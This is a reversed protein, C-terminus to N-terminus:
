SIEQLATPEQGDRFCAAATSDTADYAFRWAKGFARCLSADAIGQRGVLANRVSARDGVPRRLRPM